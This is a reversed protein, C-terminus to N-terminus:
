ELSKQLRVDQLEKSIEAKIKAAIENEEKDTLEKLHEKESSFGQPVFKLFNGDKELNCVIVNDSGFEIRGTRVKLQKIYRISDDKCSRGIAICDDLFISLKKSGALSDITIPAAYELKPTHSIVVLTLNYRKKLDVFRMMLRSAADAKESNACLWTLNDIFCVEAGTVQIVEELCGLASQEFEKVVDESRMKDIDVSVRFFNDPFNFRNGYEDSYRVFFQKDGMEFDFYVVKFKKAIEVGIQVSLVSKGLNTDSFITAVDGRYILSRWLPEQEPLKAADEMLGNASQIRFMGISFPQNKGEELLRNVEGKFDIM